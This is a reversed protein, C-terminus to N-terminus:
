ALGLALRTLKGALMRLTKGRRNMAMKPLWLRFFATVVSDRIGSQIMHGQDLSREVTCRGLRRGGKRAATRAFASAKDDNENSICM